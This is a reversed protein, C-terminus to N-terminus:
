AQMESSKKNGEIVRKQYRRFNVGICVLEIELNVGTKGKRQLRDYKWNAKINGFTGESQIDRHEMLKKGEDTSMNKRVEEKFEELQKVIHLQRGKKSKTCEKRLPCGECKGTEQIEEVRPYRGRTELRKKTTQFTYGQPCIKNGAEDKEFAWSKFRDKKNKKKEKDQGAYKLWLEMGHTECYTYNDFSGYGADAPTKKPYKGYAKYYKEMFPIYTNLDNADPSIYINRVYGDSIGMQVNYGPKFVNTHNYYDYKMHMFTAAIDTKSFSNRGEAIDEYMQYKFMRMGYDVLKDYHRQIPTKRKGKGHVFQIEKKDAMEKLKDCIEVIYEITMSHLISFNTQNEQNIKIIEEIIQGWLKSKNKKTAKMWVFTMKNANAEYKTGDITLIDTNLETDHVEIYKNLAIFIDDITDTLDNKLFREFAMFSPQQGQMIYIFRIDHRCLDELERVSVSGNLTHALLVCELMKQASYGYHNRNKINIFRFLGAEECVSCVTNVISKSKPDIHINYDLPLQTQIPTIYRPLIIDSM